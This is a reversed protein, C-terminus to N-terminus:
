TAGENRKCMEYVAGWVATTGITGHKLEHCIKKVCDCKELFPLGATELAQTILLQREENTLTNDDLDLALDIRPRSMRLSELAELDAKDLHVPQRPQSLFSDLLAQAQ